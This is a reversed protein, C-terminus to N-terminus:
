RILIMKRSERVGPAKLVYFYAGSSVQRASDDRGDWNLSHSGSSRQESLLTRIRKGNVAFISLEAPGDEPLDFDIRTTPNFPNPHNQFLHLLRVVDAAEGADTLDGIEFDIRAIEVLPHIVIGTESHIVLNDEDFLLEDVERLSWAQNQGDQFELIMTAESALLGLPACILILLFWCFRANM